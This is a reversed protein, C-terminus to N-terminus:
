SKAPHADIGTATLAPTAGNKLDASCAHAHVTIRDGLLLSALTTQGDRNITTDSNVVITVPQTAKAYAKGHRNAHKVTVLLNFPLAATGPAAAVTGRLIVSTRPKCGPGTTPPKSEQAKPAHPAPKAQHAPSAFAVSATLAMAALGLLIMKLKM